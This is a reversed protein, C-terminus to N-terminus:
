KFVVRWCNPRRAFGRMPNSPQGISQLPCSLRVLASIPFGNRDRNMPLRSIAVPPALPVSQFPLVRFDYLGWIERMWSEFKSAPRAAPRSGARAPFFQILTQQPSGARNGGQSATFFPRGGPPSLRSLGRWTFCSSPSDNPSRALLRQSKRLGLL